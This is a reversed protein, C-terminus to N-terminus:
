GWSGALNGFTFQCIVFTFTCSALVKERHHQFPLNLYADWVHISIITMLVILLITKYILVDFHLVFLVNIFYLSFGLFM